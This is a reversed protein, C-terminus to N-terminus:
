RNRKRRSAFYHKPHACLGLEDKLRINEEQLKRHEIARKVTMLLEDHKFPKQIYDYAGIKM